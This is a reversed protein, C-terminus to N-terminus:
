NGSQSQSNNEEKADELNLENQAINLVRLYNMRLEYLLNEIMNSESPTLNGKTKEELMGITDITHKAMPLNRIVKGSEPDRYGLNILAINYLSLIHDEFTVPPLEYTKSKEKKGETMKENEQTM